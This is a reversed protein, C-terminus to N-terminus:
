RSDSDEYTLEEGPIMIKVVTGNGPSSDIRISANHYVLGLREQVNRLGVCQSLDLKKRDFGAGDDAITFLLYEREDEDTKEGFLTITGGGNKPEIGHLVSNEVLPQLLLKPIRCSLFEKECTIVYDFRSGFRLKQLECYKEIVHLEVEVRVMDRHNLMYRLIETLALISNELLAREGTRNLGVLNNLVNYIFHPQIQSQLAYYEMDKRALVAKYEKGILENIKKLMKNFNNGLEAIEDESETQYYAELDGKQVMKMASALRGLPRTVYRAFLFFLVSGILLYLIGIIGGVLYVFYNQRVFNSEPLLAAVKWQTKGVPSAAILYGSLGNELWREDTNMKELVSDPVALDSCVIDGERDIVLCYADEGFSVNQLMSELVSTEMDAKIVALSEGNEVDRILRVVSFFCDTQPNLIYDQETNGIFVASGDALVAEQYWDQSWYDYQKDCYSSHVSMLYVTKDQPLLLFDSIDQRMLQFYLAMEHQLTENMEYAEVAPMERGQYRMKKRLASMINENIYPILTINELDNLYIEVNRCLSKVTSGASLVAQSKTRRIYYAPLVTIIILLPILVSVLFVVILKFQISKMKRLM